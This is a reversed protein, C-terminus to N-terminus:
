GLPSTAYREPEDDRNDEDLIRLLDLLYSTNSAIGLEDRAAETRMELRFQGTELQVVRRAAEHARRNGYTAAVLRGEDFHLAAADEIGLVDFILAGTLCNSEAIQVVDFLTIRGLLGSLFISSQRPPEAIRTEVPAPAPAAIPPRREIIGQLAARTEHELPGLRPLHALFGSAAGRHGQVVYAEVVRRCAQAAEAHRGLESSLVAIDRHVRAIDEYGLLELKRAIYLIGNLDRRRRYLAALRLYTDVADKTRAVGEYLAALQNLASTDQPHAAIYRELRAVQWRFRLARAREAITSGLRALARSGASPSLGDAIPASLERRATINSAM